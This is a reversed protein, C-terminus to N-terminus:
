GQDAPALLLLGLVLTELALLAKRAEQQAGATKLHQVIELESRDPNAPDIVVLNPGFQQGLLPAFEPYAMVIMNKRLVM